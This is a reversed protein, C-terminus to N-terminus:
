FTINNVRVVWPVVKSDVTIYVDSSEDPTDPTPNDPDNDARRPHGLRKIETVALKYVNNRVTCFEMPGMIGNRNNDNHRNWYFYYCYYGWKGVEDYSRQYITFGAETVAKKFATTLNSDSSNSSPRGKLEWALWAYNASQKDLSNSTYNSEDPNEGSSPTGKYENDVYTEGAPMDKVVIYRVSNEPTTGEVIDEKINEKDSESVFTFGTAGRGFVAMYFSNTRNWEPILKGNEWVWEVSAEIAARAVANWSLYLNGGYYYLIPAKWTEIDDDPTDQGGYQADTSNLADILDCMEQTYKPDSSSKSTDGCLRAKFVVGTSVGNAQFFPTGDNDIYPITNETAYRWIHYEKNGYNDSSGKLVEDIASTGWRTNSSVNGVNLDGNNDFFPYNFYQDFDAMIGFTGDSHKKAKDGALPDVVYNGGTPNYLAATGKGDADDYDAVPSYWPLEKGLLTWSTSPYKTAVGDVIADGTMLGNGSVREFYYYQKNMNVFSMKELKVNIFPYNTDPKGNENNLYVVEYTNDGNKSGDKFDFRCAVRQVDIPGGAGDTSNDIGIGDNKESLNFPTSSTAFFDWQDMNKPLIRYAISTNTMLFNGGNVTSWISGENAVVGENVIVNGTLNYWDKDGYLEKGDESDVNALYDKMGNNPNVIIFVAVEQDKLDENEDKMNDDAYLRELKSREFKASAHWIQQDASGSHLYINNSLVNAGCIYGLDNKRALILFVENVNNEQNTGVEVGSNSASSDDGPNITTSRTGGAGPMQFNVGIYVGPANSDDDGASGGSSQQIVDDSCGALMVLSAAAFLCKKLYNM